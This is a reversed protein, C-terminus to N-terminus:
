RHVCVDRSMGIVSGDVWMMGLERMEDWIWGDIEIGWGWRWGGVVSRLGGGGGKGGGGGGGM